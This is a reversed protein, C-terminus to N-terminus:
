KKLRAKAEHYSNIIEEISKLQAFCRKSKQSQTIKQIKIRLTGTSVTKNGYFNIIGEPEQDLISTQHIGGLFFRELFDRFSNNGQLDRICSLDYDQKSMGELPLKLAALGERREREWLPDISIVEFHISFTDVKSSSLFFEDDIDLVLSFGFGFSWLTKNKFSSHTSGNLDGEVVKVFKPLKVKYRVHLNDYEFDWGEIIEILLVIRCFKPFVFDPDKYINLKRMLENTEDQIRNLKENRAQQKTDDDSIVSLNEVCYGFLQKSNQDIELQYENELNNFDPFIIFVGDSKRYSITVLLTIPELDAMVYFKVFEDGTSYRSPIIQQNPDVFMRSSIQEQVADNNDVHKRLRTPPIDRPGFNDSPQYKDDSTYTFILGTSEEASREKIM